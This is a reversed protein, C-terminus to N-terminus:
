RIASARVAMSAPRSGDRRWATSAVYAEASASATVAGPPPGGAWSSSAHDIEGVRHPRGGHRVSPRGPDLEELARQRHQDHHTRDEEEQHDPGLLPLTLLALRHEAAELFAVADDGTAPEDPSDHSERVLGHGQLNGIRDPDFAQPAGDVTEAVVGLGALFRG